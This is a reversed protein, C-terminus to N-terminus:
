LRRAVVAQSQGALLCFIVTAPQGDGIPLRRRVSEVDVSLHRCKIEYHQRPQKIFYKRVHKIGAPLIAEVAFPTVLSTEPKQSATLYEEEYDIRSFSQNETL